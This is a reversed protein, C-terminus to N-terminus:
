TSPKTPAVPCKGTPLVDHERSGCNCKAASEKGGGTVMSAKVLEVARAILVNDKNIQVLAIRERRCKLWPTVFKSNIWLCFRVIAYIDAPLSGTLMAIFSQSWGTQLAVWDWVINNM